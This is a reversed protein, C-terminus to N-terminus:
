LDIQFTIPGAPGQAKNIAEVMWDIEQRAATALGAAGVIWIKYPPEIGNINGFVMSDVLANVNTGHWNPAELHPLLSNYFDLPMKWQSADLKIVRM